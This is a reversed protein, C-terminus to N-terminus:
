PKRRPDPLRLDPGKLTVVRCRALRSFIRGSMVSELSPWGTGRMPLNTTYIAPRASASRANVIRYTVEENWETPKAAGLDDLLLLPVSAWRGFEGEPDTVADSPRLSAYLDAATSAFWPVSATAVVRRIAGFAQWTKGVGTPGTILLSPVPRRAALEDCWRTIEPDTAVAQRYEPNIRRRTTETNRFRIGEVTTLDYRIDDSM